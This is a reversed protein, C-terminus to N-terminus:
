HQSFGTVIARFFIKCVPSISNTAADTAVSVVVRPAAPSANAESAEPSLTLAEDDAGYSGVHTGNVHYMHAAGSIDIALIVQVTVARKAPGRKKLGVLNLSVIEM